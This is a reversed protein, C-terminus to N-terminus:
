ASNRNSGNRLGRLIRYNHEPAVRPIIARQKRQDPDTLRFGNDYAQRAVWLFLEAECVDMGEFRLRIYGRREHDNPNMRVADFHTDYLDTGCDGTTLLFSIFKGVVALGQAAVHLYTADSIRKAEDSHQQGLWRCDKHHRILLPVSM